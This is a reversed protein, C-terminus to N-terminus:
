IIIETLGAREGNTSYCMVLSLFYMLVFQFKIEQQQKADMGVCLMWTYVCVSECCM